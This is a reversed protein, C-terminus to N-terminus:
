PERESRGAKVSVHPYVATVIADGVSSRGILRQAGSYYGVEAPPSYLGMIFVNTMALFERRAFPVAAM